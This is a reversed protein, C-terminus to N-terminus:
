FTVVDAPTDGFATRAQWTVTLTRSRNDFTCELRTLSVIGPVGAVEATGLLANRFERIAKAQNYKQGLLVRSVDVGDRELWAVGAARNLFWEGAVTRLRIRAGQVVATIGTTLVLDGTASIDGTAPDILVDIPDTTLIAM